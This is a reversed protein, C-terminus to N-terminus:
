QEAQLTAKSDLAQELEDTEVVLDNRKNVMDNYQAVLDQEKRVDANYTVVSANYDDVGANYEKIQGNSKLSQLRDFETSIQNARSALEADLSDIQPKLKGLEADYTDVQQRRGAFESEYREMYGVIVKRDSFYKGYYAELDSPLDNVESALISHLENPVDAGAEQYAAINARIRESTVAAYARATMEDVHKRESTALREYIAHLVEHAATVQEVGELRSDPVDYLYISRQGTYCGLIITKENTQCQNFDGKSELSPHTAYFIRRTDPRMTTEDALRVIDTPASYNRLRLTDHFWYRQQWAIWGALVIVLVFLGSLARTLPTTKPAPKPTLQPQPM